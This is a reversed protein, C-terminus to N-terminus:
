GAPPPLVSVHYAERYRDMADPDGSEGLFRLGDVRTRGVETASVWDKSQNHSEIKLPTFQQKRVEWSLPVAGYHCEVIDFGMLRFCTPVTSLVHCVSVSFTTLHELAGHVYPM